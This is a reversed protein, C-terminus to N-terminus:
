ESKDVTTSANNSDAPRATPLECNIHISKVDSLALHGVVKRDVSVDCLRLYEGGKTTIIASQADETNQNMSVQDTDSADVYVMEHRTMVIDVV